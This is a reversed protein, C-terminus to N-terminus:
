QCQDVKPYVVERICEAYGIWGGQLAVRPQFFYVGAQDFDNYKTKYVIHKGDITADWTVLSGNPKKVEIEASLIDGPNIGSSGDPDIDFILKTGIDGQHIRNM